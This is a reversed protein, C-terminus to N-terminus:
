TSVSEQTTAYAEALKDLFGFLRPNMQTYDNARLTDPQQVFRHNALSPLERESAAILLEILDHTFEMHCQFGYVLDNYEVIQRPCAESYAIISAEKTCASL